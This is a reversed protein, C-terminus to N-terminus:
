AELPGRGDLTQVTRGRERLYSLSKVIRGSESAPDCTAFALSAEALAEIPEL